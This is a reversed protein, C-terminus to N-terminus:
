FTFKLDFSYSRASPYSGSDVGMRSVDKGFSNVEPDWGGYKSIVFVNGFSAGFNISRLFFGKKRINWLYSLSLRSLRLYSGDEVFRDSFFEDDYDLRPHKASTNLPSWADFYAEKRVNKVLTSSLTSIHTNFDSYNNINYIQNGFSGNFDMSLNLGKWKFSTNFGFIFDPNPNGIITRDNDDICGNGDLDLYKVDGAQAHKSPDTGIAPWQEGNQVIGDSKFGYFLGMPQGEIFINLVALNSSSSRLTSGWFYNCEQLNSESLYLKGSQVDSGIDTIRNRNFSINGGVLWEFDGAKVPVAELNLELGMNSISGQNVWMSSFGTTRSINKLQLLDDTMKYYADVSFSLRGKFFGFDLGANYQRTTEWKLDPNSMYSLVTAVQTASSNSETHDAVNTSTFLPITRYSPIAQNGVMGWGLRLKLMSIDRARFWPEQNLRWAFAFSPFSSWKNRGQFKSSGDLRYTATLVYRDRYNYIARVLFSMLTAKNEGYTISTYPSVGSNISAVQAFDQDIFWAEVNSTSVENGSITIGATGTISHAGFRGNFLFLNDWNYKFSSSGVNTGISGVLRSIRRSKFKNRETYQYDAGFTSKFAVWPAIDWQLYLSPTIRLQSRTNTFYKLWKDPGASYDATQDTDWEDTDDEAIYPRYSLVSRMMSAAATIRTSSAGQTMSSNFYSIGTRTGVAVKKGLKKEFNLRATLQRVGSNKVIGRNDNYGMSFLYSFAKPKGAIQFYYRQSVATRLAYDQWNVPTVKLGERTSPNEYIAALAAAAGMDTLYDVYENFSLMDIRRSAQSIDLGASFRISTKDRSASRTTILVVGNAGQSGYIATASADKLIEISAIDQPNIGMLGNSEESAGAELGGNTLMSESSPGGNIIIGDVVYLPNSDGNFSSMGRISINVGADPAASNSVVQVGAAHGQILQDLSTKRAADEDDIKVSSVSGTLDSKRMAGYGVVVVEELEENDEELIVDIKQRGGVSITTTKFSLCSIVLKDDKLSNVKIAYRGDVDSVVGSTTGELIVAAGAIGMGTNDRITGTVNQAIGRVCVTLCFIIFILKKM